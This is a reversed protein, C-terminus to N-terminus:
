GEWGVKGLISSSGMSREVRRQGSLRMQQDSEEKWEIVM